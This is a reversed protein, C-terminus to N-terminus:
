DKLLDPNKMIIMAAMVSPLYNKDGEVGSAILKWADRTKYKEIGKKVTGEGINYALLSLHWDNFILHNTKLYRNAADTEKEVNLREDTEKDVKMGFRRATGPIFMWLGAASVRNRTSTNVYGSEVIPIAQLEVPTGHLRTKENLVKDFAAKRELADKIFKRGEPTGLYKNLQALVPANVVLPFESQEQVLKQAEELTIKKDQVLNKSAWTSFVMLSMLCVVLLRLLKDRSPRFSSNNMQEIRRKLIHQQRSFCFGTASVPESHTDLSTEAVQILCGIYDKSKIKESGLLVEDCAFEQNENILKILLHTFPNFFCFSKLLILGYVWITDGQRHHQFEHYLAAEFKKPHSALSSPIMSVLHGPRYYSFPVKIKESVYISIKGRRKFQLSKKELELLLFAERFIRFLGWCLFLGLMLILGNFLHATELRPAFTDSNVTIFSAASQASDPAVVENVNSGNWVKLAPVLYEHKPIFPQVLVLVFISALSLYSLKLKERFNLFVIIKLVVYLFIILINLTLYSNLLHLSM